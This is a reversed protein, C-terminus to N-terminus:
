PKAASENAPQQMTALQLQNFAESGIKQRVAEDAAAQAAQWKHLYAPDAPDQSTGGVSAIFEKQVQNLAQQQEPELKPALASAIALTDQGDENKTEIFNPQMVLPAVPPPASPIDQAGSTAGTNKALLRNLLENQEQKLKQATQAATPQKGHTRSAAGQSEPSAKASLLKKKEAYITELEGAIIDHLTSEPCNMARLNAIYTPFDASEIKSWDFAPASTVLDTQPAQHSAAATPGKPKVVTQDAPPVEANQVHIIAYGALVANLVLSLAFPINIRLAKM